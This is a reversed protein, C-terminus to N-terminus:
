LDCGATGDSKEHRENRAANRVMFLEAAVVLAAGACLHAYNAEVNM